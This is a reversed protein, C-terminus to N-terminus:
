NITVHFSELVYLAARELRDLKELEAKVLESAGAIRIAAMGRTVRDHATAIAEGMQDAIQQFTLGRGRLRCAEADLDATIPSELWRGGRGRPQDKVGDRNRGTAM